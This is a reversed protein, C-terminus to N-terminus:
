GVVWLDRADAGIAFSRIKLPFMETLILWGLQEPTAQMSFVFCVVFAVIMSRKFPAGADTGCCAFTSRM